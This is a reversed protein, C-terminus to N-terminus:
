GKVGLMIEMALDFLDRNRVENVRIEAPFHEVFFSRLESYRRKM